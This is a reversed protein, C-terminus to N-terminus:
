AARKRRPAPGHTRTIKNDSAAVLLSFKNLQGGAGRRWRSITSESLGARAALAAATMGTEDLYEQISM